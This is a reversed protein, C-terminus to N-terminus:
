AWTLYCPRLRLAHLLGLSPIVGMNILLTPSALNPIGRRGNGRRHLIVGKCQRRSQRTRTYSLRCVWSAPGNPLMPRHYPGRCQAPLGTRSVIPQHRSCGETRRALTKRKAARIGTRSTMQASARM